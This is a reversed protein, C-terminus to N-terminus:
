TSIHIFVVSAGHMSYRSYLVSPCAPRTDASHNCVPREQLLDVGRVYSYDEIVSVSHSSSTLCGHCGDRAPFSRERLRESAGSIPGFGCCPNACCEAFVRCVARFAIRLADIRLLLCAENESLPPGHGFGDCHGLGPVM